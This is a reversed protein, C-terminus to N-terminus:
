PADERRRNKIQIYDGYNDEISELGLKLTGLIIDAARGEEPSLGEKLFCGIRGDTQLEWDFGGPLFADLGLLATQAVASVGACVVDEGPPAAGAHGWIRFGRLGDESSYLEVQIV